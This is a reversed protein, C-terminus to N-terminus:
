TDEKLIYKTARHPCEFPEVVKNGFHTAGGPASHCSAKCVCGDYRGGGERDACFTDWLNYEIIGHKIGLKVVWDEVQDDFLRKIFEKKNDM